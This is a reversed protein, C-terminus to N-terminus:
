DGEADFANRKQPRHLGISAIHGREEYGIEAPM